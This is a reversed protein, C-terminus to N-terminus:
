ICLTVTVCCSCSWDTYLLCHISDPWLFSPLTSCDCSETATAPTHHRLHPTSWAAAQNRHWHSQQQLTRSNGTLTLCCFLGRSPRQSPRPPRQKQRPPVYPVNRRRFWLSLPAYRPPLEGTGRWLQMLATSQTPLIACQVYRDMSNWSATAAKWATAMADRKRCRPTARRSTLWEILSPISLTPM